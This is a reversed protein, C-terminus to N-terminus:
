LHGQYNYRGSSLLWKEFRNIAGFNQDSRAVSGNVKAEKSAAGSPLIIMSPEDSSPFKVDFVEGAEDLESADM